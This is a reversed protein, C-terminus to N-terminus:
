GVKNWGGYVDDLKTCGEGVGFFKTGVDDLNTGVTM